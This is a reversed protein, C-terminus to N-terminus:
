LPKGTVWVRSKLVNRSIQKSAAVEATASGATGAAACVVEAWFFVELLVTLFLADLLVTLFAVVALVVAAEAARVRRARRARAFAAAAACAVRSACSGLNLSSSVPARTGSRRAAAAM